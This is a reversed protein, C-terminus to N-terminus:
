KTKGFYHSTFSKLFALSLSPFYFEMRANEGVIHAKSVPFNLAKIQHYLIGCTVYLRIDASTM